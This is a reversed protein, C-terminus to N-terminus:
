VTEESAALIEQRRTETLLGAQVLLTLGEQTDPDDAYVRRATRLMDLYDEILPESKAATRIDIREQRTFRDLFARSSWSARPAPAPPGVVRLGPPTVGADAILGDLEQRNLGIRALTDDGAHHLAILARHYEESQLTQLHQKSEIKM